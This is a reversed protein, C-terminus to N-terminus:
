CKSRLYEYIEDTTLDAFTRRRKVFVDVIDESRNLCEDDHDDGEDYYSEDYTETAMKNEYGEDENNNNQDAYRYDDLYFERTSSRHGDSSENYRPVREPLFASTVVNNSVFNLIDFGYVDDNVYIYDYNEDIDAFKVSKRDNTEDEHNNERFSSTASITTVHHDRNLVDNNKTVDHENKIDDYIYNDQSRRTMIHVDAVGPHKM